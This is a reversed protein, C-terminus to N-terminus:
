LAISPLIVEKAVTGPRTVLDPRYVSVVAVALVQQEKELLGKGIEGALARGQM